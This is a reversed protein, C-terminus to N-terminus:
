YEWLNFYDGCAISLFDIQEKRIKKPVKFICALTRHKLATYIIDLWGAVRYLPVYPEAYAPIHLLVM